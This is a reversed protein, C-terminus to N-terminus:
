PKVLRFFMAPAVPDLPVWVSGSPAGPYDVWNTGLGVQLSNTQVQLRYDGTWTLKLGGPQRIWQILPQVEGPVVGLTGDVTLQSTDWALGPGPAPPEITDFAGYYTGPADFLKFRQGATFTGQTKVIRLTGGFTVAWLGVIQDSAGTAADVELETVSGPWLGLVNAITLTAIGPGPALTGGGQVDVSGNLLGSGALTGGTVTVATPGLSGDVQLTGSEIITPGSYTNNGTLRLTGSGVKTLAAVRSATADAITGEFNSDPERSSSGIVWTLTGSGSGQGLVQTSPGGRLAGVFMTGANRAQLIATGTGLDITANPCGLTTNGGGSNFRFTGASDGLHFTGTFNTLNGNFTLM